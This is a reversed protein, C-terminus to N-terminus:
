QHLPTPPLRRFIGECLLASRDRCSPATSDVCTVPCTDRHKSNFQLKSRASHVVILGVGKGVHQGVCRYIDQM